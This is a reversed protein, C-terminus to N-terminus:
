LYDLDSILDSIRLDLNKEQADSLNFRYITVAEKLDDIFAARNETQAGRKIKSEDIKM